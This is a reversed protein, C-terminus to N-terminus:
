GKGERVVVNAKYTPRPIRLQCRIVAALRWHVHGTPRKMRVMLGQGEVTHTDTIFVLFWQMKTTEFTSLSHNTQPCLM